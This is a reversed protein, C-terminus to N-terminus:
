KVKQTSLNCVYDVKKNRKCLFFLLVSGNTSFIQGAFILNARRFPGVKMTPPSSGVGM